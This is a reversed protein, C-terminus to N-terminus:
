HIINDGSPPTPNTLYILVSSLGILSGIHNLILSGHQCPVWFGQSNTYWKM